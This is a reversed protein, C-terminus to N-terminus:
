SVRFLLKWRMKLEGFIAGFYEKYHGYDNGNEKGTDRIRVGIPVKM